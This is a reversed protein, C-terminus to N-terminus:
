LNNFNNTQLTRSYSNKFNLITSNNFLHTSPSSRQQHTPIATSAQQLTSCTPQPPLVCNILQYQQRPKNFPQVPPNSTAPPSNYYEQLLHLRNANFFCASSTSLDQSKLSPAVRKLFGQNLIWDARRRVFFFPPVRPKRPQEPIDDTADPNINTPSTKSGSPKVKSPATSTIRGRLTNPLSDSVMLL